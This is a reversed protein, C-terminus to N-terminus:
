NDKIQIYYELKEMPSISPYNYKGMMLCVMEHVQMSSLFNLNEKLLDWM